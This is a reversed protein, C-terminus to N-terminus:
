PPLSGSSSFCSPSRLLRALTAPRTRLRRPHPNIQWLHKNGAEEFFNGQGPKDPGAQSRLIRSVTAPQNGAVPECQEPFGTTQSCEVSYGFGRVTSPVTSRRTAGSSGAFIFLVNCSHAVPQLILPFHRIRLASLRNNVKGRGAVRFNIVPEICPACSPWHFMSCRWLQLLNQRCQFAVPLGLHLAVVGVQGQGVPVRVRHAGLHQAVQGAGLPLVGRQPVAADLLQASGLRDVVAPGAALGVRQGVAGAADAHRQAPQLDLLAAGDGAVALLQLRQAVFFGDGDEFVDDLVLLVM